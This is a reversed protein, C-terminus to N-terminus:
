NIRSRIDSLEASINTLSHFIGAVPSLDELLKALLEILALGGHGLVFPGGSRRRLSGESFHDCSPLAVDIFDRAEGAARGLRREVRKRSTGVKKIKGGAQKVGNRLNTPPQVFFNDWRIRALDIGHSPSREDREEYRWRQCSGTTGRDTRM